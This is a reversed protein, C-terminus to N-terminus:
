SLPAIQTSGQFAASPAPSPASCSPPCELAPTPKRLRPGLGGPTLLPGPGSPTPTASSPLEGRFHERGQGLGGSGGMTSLARQRHLLNRGARGMFSFSCGAARSALFYPLSLPLIPGPLWWWVELPYEPRAPLRGWPGSSNQSAEARGKRGVQERKRHCGWCGLHGACRDTGNTDKM